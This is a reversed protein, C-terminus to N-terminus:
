PCPICDIRGPAPTAGIGAVKQPSGFEGDREKVRYVVETAQGEVDIIPDSSRLFWANQEGNYHEIYWLVSAELTRKLPWDM